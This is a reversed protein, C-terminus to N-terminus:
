SFTYVSVSSSVKQREIEGVPEIEMEELRKWLPDLSRERNLYFESGRVRWFTWGVRELIRQREM